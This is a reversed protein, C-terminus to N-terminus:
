GVNRRQYCQNIGYLSLVVKRNNIRRKIPIFEVYGNIYTHFKFLLPYSEARM